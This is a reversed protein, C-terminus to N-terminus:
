AIPKRPPTCSPLVVEHQLDLEVLQEDRARLALAHQNELESRDAAAKRKVEATNTREAAVRQAWEGVTKALHDEAEAKQKRMEGEMRKQLAAESAAAEIKQKKLENEQRDWEEKARQKIKALEQVKKSFQLRLAHLPDSIAM